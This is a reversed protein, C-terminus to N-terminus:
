TKRRGSKFYVVALPPLTINISYPRGHAPKKMARLSKPNGQGSGGYERADSNLVEKWYGSRPVGVRYKSHTTPTFNCVILTIDDTSKGKRFFSIVSQLADNADIWEFGGSECDMEYLAPERRYLQNLAKLWKQIEAHRQYELFHWDPSGDHNWEQWLGLEAGMFLLKKGPQAYMYGYLLRLNAFKQWDDGPMKGLLSGKGYVVEDHSLPLVFNENFAYIMRFTLDNHHYKRHVPNRSIYQLTDHMWGMDWKMGFGLGGLYTPRSVMPWATSEEAIMQVDPYNKYVEENLRRLFDIAELNERGGYKNPIWEGEKRSYDLYLMSAVADVRLGDAHYKDLWFLANSILFCQVESRGYNFIHSKWDPHFGKKPHAHEYLHTGDFLGLGHEDTPFHSPVWDLIVGIGRQHLCDILYMFDQPTGYRSTPAFYGTIQYGWSGFFPHEMVPLFEVHTFDMQQVYDALETAMERYSLPRNGEEPVRKWSGPHVEYIAIPDDLGNHERRKQMWEQDGWDYELGWVISATKPPIENYTALPDAKDVKYGKYRSHIHYKYLAGKGVGPIFGEWIGSSGKPLLYHSARDWGNFDGIISVQKADPAWVAFYTGKRKKVTMAHAGLMQYLRFYSGENFLYLDDEALLTLEPPESPKKIKATLSRDSAKQVQRKVMPHRHKGELKM